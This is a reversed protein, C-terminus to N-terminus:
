LAGKLVEKLDSYRWNMGPLRAMVRNARDLDEQRDVSLKVDSFDDECSLHQCRFDRQIIGTVHHRDRFSESLKHANYLSERSFVETDTGDPWTTPPNTNSVYDVKGNYFQYLKLVQYSVEPCIAWCDGTIRMVIDPLFQRAINRYVTLMDPHPGEVIEVGATKAISMFTKGQDFPVTLVVKDVEPIQKARILVHSIMPHGGINRMVKRPLRTSDLRAQVICLTKM